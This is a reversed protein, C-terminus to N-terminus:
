IELLILKIRQIINREKNYMRQLIKSIDQILHDNVLVM